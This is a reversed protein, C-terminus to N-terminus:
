SGRDSASLTKCGTCRTLSRHTGAWTGSPMLPELAELTRHTGLRPTCAILLGLRELRRAAPDYPVAVGMAPNQPRGLDAVVLRGEPKLIRAVEIATRQKGADPLHHFFLTSLVVDCRAGDSPLAPSRGQAPKFRSEDAARM